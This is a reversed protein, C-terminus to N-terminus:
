ANAKAALSKNKKAAIEEPSMGWPSSKPGSSKNGGGGGRNQPRGGKADTKAVPVFKTDNIFEPVYHSEEVKLAKAPAAEGEALSVVVVRKLKDPNQSAVEVANVFHKLKDGEYKFTEGLSTQIEEATKGEAALAAKAKIGNNLTFSAFETVSKM